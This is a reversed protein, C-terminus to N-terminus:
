NLGWGIKELNDFDAPNQSSYLEFATVAGNMGLGSYPDLAERMRGEVGELMGDLAMGMFPAAMPRTFLAFPGMTDDLMNDAKKSAMKRLNKRLGQWDIKAQRRVSVPIGDPSTEYALINHKARMIGKGGDLLDFNYYLTDVRGLKDFFFIQEPSHTHITNSTITLKYSWNPSDSLDEIKLNEVHPMFFNPNLITVYERFAYFLFYAIEHLNWDWEFKLDKGKMTDKILAKIVQRSDAEIKDRINTQTTVRGDAYYISVSRDNWIAFDGKGPYDFLKGAFKRTSLIIKRDQLFRQGHGAFGLVAGDVHFTFGVAATQDLVHHPDNQTKIWALVRESDEAKPQEKSLASSCDGRIVRALKWARAATPFACLYAAAIFVGTHVPKMKFEM